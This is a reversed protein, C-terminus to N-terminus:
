KRRNCTPTEGNGWEYCRTESLSQSIFRTATPFYKVEQAIKESPNCQINASLAAQDLLAICKIAEGSAHASKNREIVVQEFVSQRQLMQMQSEIYTNKAIPPSEMKQTDSRPSFFKGTGMGGGFPGVPMDSTTQSQFNEFSFQHADKLAGLPAPVTSQTDLPKTTNDDNGQPTTPNVAVNNVIPHSAERINSMAGDERNSRGKALHAQIPREYAPTDSGLQTRYAMLFSVHILLSLFIALKFRM